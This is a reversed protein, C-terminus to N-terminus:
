IAQGPKGHGLPLTKSEEADPVGLSGPKPENPHTDEATPRRQNQHQNPKSEKADEATFPRQQRKQHQGQKQSIASQQDSLAEKQSVASHQRSFAAEKQAMALTRM